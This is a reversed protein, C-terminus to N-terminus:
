ANEHNDDSNPAPEANIELEFRYSGLTGSMSGPYRGSEGVPAALQCDIRVQAEYLAMELLRRLDELNHASVNLQLEVRDADGTSATPVSSQPDTSVALTEASEAKRQAAEALIAAHEDDMADLLRSLELTREPHAQMQDKIEIRRLQWERVRARTLDDREDV